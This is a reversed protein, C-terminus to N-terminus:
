GGGSGTATSACATVLCAAALWAPVLRTLGALGARTRGTSGTLTLSAKM